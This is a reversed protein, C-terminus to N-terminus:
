RSFEIQFLRQLETNLNAIAEAIRWEKKDREGVFNSVARIQSFPVDEMLGVYHVAAGEMSEIGVFTKNSYYSIREPSTTVENVTVADTINLGWQKYDKHNTTLKGDWWPHQNAAAFGMEFVTKFVGNEMVGLDGITDSEVVVVDGLPISSHFSGAIGAQVVEIPRKRAIAKTLSYTAATLGVGTILVDVPWGRQNIAAITPAIEPETAACLLFKMYCFQACDGGGAVKVKAWQQKCTHILFYGDHSPLMKVGGVPQVTLIPAVLLVVGGKALAGQGIVVAVVVFQLNFHYSLHVNFGPIHHVQFRKRIQHVLGHQFFEVM